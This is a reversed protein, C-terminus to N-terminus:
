AVHGAPGYLRLLPAKRHVVLDVSSQEGSIGLTYGVSAYDNLLPGAPLPCPTLQALALKAPRNACCLAQLLGPALQAMRPSLKCASERFSM